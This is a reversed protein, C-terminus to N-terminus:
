DLREDVKGAEIVDWFSPWGCFSNYKTDSSFLEQGCGACAYVGDTKAHVYEGTFPRETASQRLVAYQDPSLQQRWDADSKTIKHTM